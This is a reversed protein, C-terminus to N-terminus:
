RAALRGTTSSEAYLQLTEGDLLKVLVLTPGKSKSTGKARKLFEPMTVRSLPNSPGEADASVQLAWINVPDRGGGVM